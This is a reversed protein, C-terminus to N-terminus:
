SAATRIQASTKGFRRERNQFDGLAELLDLEGFEPWSKDTYHIEAYAIQWLLFNSLRKEGSTRVVLEVPPLGATWLRDEVAKADVDDPKLAGAAVDLAVLRAMRVLEERGGYSLALTLVMKDNKASVERLEELPERVRAPLRELEGIAHLRIGNDMIEARERHLYDRLLDMLGAVEDPPRSWNQSSFAYLTLAELDVKRAARTVDRVSDSGRRHGELRQMGRGEAWRGNGDMIVGVHRPLPRSRVEARLRDIEAQKRQM